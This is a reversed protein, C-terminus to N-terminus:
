SVSERVEAMITPAPYSSLTPLALCSEKAAAFGMEMFLGLRSARGRRSLRAPLRTAPILQPPTETPLQIRSSYTVQRESFPQGRPAALGDATHLAVVTSVSTWLIIM